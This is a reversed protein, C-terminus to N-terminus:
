RGSSSSATSFRSRCPHQKKSHKSVKIWSALRKPVHASKIFAFHHSETTCRGDGEISRCVRRGHGRTQLPRHFRSSHSSLAITLRWSCVVHIYLRHTNTIRVTMRPIHHQHAPALTPPALLPPDHPQPLHRPVLPAPPSSARVIKRQKQHLHGWQRHHHYVPLLPLLQTPQLDLTSNISPSTQLQQLEPWNTQQTTM